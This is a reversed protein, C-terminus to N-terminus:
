GPKQVPSVTKNGKASLGSSKWDEMRSVIGTAVQRQKQAMVKDAGVIYFGRQPRGNFGPGMLWDEQGALWKISVTPHSNSKPKGDPTTVAHLTGRSGGVPQQETSDDDLRPAVQRRNQAYDCTPAIKTGRCCSGLAARRTSGKKLEIAPESPSAFCLM